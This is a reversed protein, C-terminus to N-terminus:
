EKRGSLKQVMVAVLCMFEVLHLVYFRPLEPIAMSIGVSVVLELSLLWLARGLPVPKATPFGKLAVKKQENTKLIPGNAESMKSLFQARNTGFYAGVFYLGVFLGFPYLLNALFFFQSVEGIRGSNAYNYEIMITYLMCFISKLILILGVTRLVVNRGAGVGSTM